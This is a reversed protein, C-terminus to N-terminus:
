VYIPSMTKKVDTITSRGAFCEGPCNCQTSM